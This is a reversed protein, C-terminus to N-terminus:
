EGFLSEWISTVTTGQLSSQMNTPPMSLSTGGYLSQSQWNTEREAIKVENSNKVTTAFETWSDITNQDVPIGLSESVDAAERAAQAPTAGSLISEAIVDSFSGAGLSNQKGMWEAYSGTYGQDVAFLYNKMDATYDYGGGSTSAMGAVVGAKKYATMLDDGYIDIGSSPYKLLLEAIQTKEQYAREYEMGLLNMKAEYASTYIDGLRDFNDKNMDYNAKYIDYNYKNISTADEVAQNVYKQAEAFNGQLAQLVAAKANIDASLRTLQPAANREIQATQNNIFNMSAMRDQTAAIQSDKAEILKNYQNTLSEIEKFGKEQEAFHKSVDIGTDQWAQEKADQPSILSDMFSQLRGKEQQNYAEQQERQKRYYEEMQMQMQSQLGATGATAFNIDGFAPTTTTPAVYSQYPSQIMSADTPITTKPLAANYTAAMYDQNVPQLKSTTYAAKVEPTVFSQNAIEDLRAATPAATNPDYATGLLAKARDVTQQVTEQGVSTKTTTGGSSSSSSTSTKPASTTSSSSSSSSSAKLKDYAAMAKSQSTTYVKEGNYSAVWKGDTTKYVAM